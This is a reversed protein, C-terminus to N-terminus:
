CVKFCKFCSKDCTDAGWVADHKYIHQMRGCEIDVALERICDYIYPDIWFQDCAVM